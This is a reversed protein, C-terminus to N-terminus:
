QLLNGDNYGYDWTQVSMRTVGVDPGTETHQHYRARLQERSRELAAISEAGLQKNYRPNIRLALMTIFFDDLAEPFPFDDGSTLTAIRKWDGLDARYFWERMLSNTSLTIDQSGEILRGNGSLTLNYTAFNGQLDHVAIRAGDDPRLPLIVTKAGALNCMLRSNVPPKLERTTDVTDDYGTSGVAWPTLQDGAEFGIVSSVLSNLRALIEAAQTPTPNNTDSVLNSERFAQEAISAVGTM